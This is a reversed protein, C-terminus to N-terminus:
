CVYKVLWELSQLFNVRGTQNFIHWWNASLYGNYRINWKRKRTAKFDKPVLLLFPQQLFEIYIYIYFFFFSFLYRFANQYIM